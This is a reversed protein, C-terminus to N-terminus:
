KIIGDGLINYSIYQHTPWFPHCTSTIDVIAANGGPMLHVLRVFPANVPIHEEHVSGDTKLLLALAKVWHGQLQTEGLVSKIECDRAKVGQIILDM